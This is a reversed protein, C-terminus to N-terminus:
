KKLILEAGKEAIMITAANTNGSVLKPMISADIVRLNETGHVILNDGVVAKDDHGMKCTGTPHYLTAGTRRAYDLLDDDSETESGPLEERDIWDKLAPAKVLNRAIKMGKILVHRDMESSLFNPKIIPNAMSDKSGIHVSGRSHPRLQCPGITLGPWKDLKRKKPDAFSAPAIHYQIDPTSVSEDSKVFGAVLGATVCLAGRRLFAFKLAQKVLGLGRLEENLTRKQSARWVLRAIYHDQYNEGVGLLPYKVEIGYKKLLIPNGIGSLELIQPSQISGASLIVEKQAFISKENNNVLYKIGKAIKGDIIIKTAHAHKIIQLNSRKKAPNLYARAASFRLGNKQTVQFYNFGEQSEANYDKTKEYGIQAAGQILDDMFPYTQRTTTVNLPGDVGRFENSGLEFNESKKFYPLVDDYSWGRNGMQSWGNYDDPQGRVYVMANISSSGGLGKGRPIPIPRNYTYPEPESDFLWNVGPMAMTKIYGVPIHIWPNIDAGGAELLAVTYKGNESLRNALVCGASGAGVIIYDYKAL